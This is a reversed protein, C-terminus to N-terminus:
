APFVVLLDAFSAMAVPVSLLTQVAREWNAGDRLKNAHKHIAM